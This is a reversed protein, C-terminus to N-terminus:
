VVRVQEEQKKNRQFTYGLYKYRSVEEVERGEWKWREEGGGKEFKMMKSKRANVEL